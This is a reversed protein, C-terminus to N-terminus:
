NQIAIGARIGWAGGTINGGLFGLGIDLIRQKIQDSKQKDLFIKLADIQALLQNILDSSIEQSLKALRLTSELQEIKTQQEILTSEQTMQLTLLEQYEEDTLVVEAWSLVPLFCLFAVLLLSFRKLNIWM